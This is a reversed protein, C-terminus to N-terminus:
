KINEVIKLIGKCRNLYTHDRKIIEMQHVILDKNYQNKM